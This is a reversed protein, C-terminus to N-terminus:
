VKEGSPAGLLGTPKILLILILIAFAVVDRLTSSFFGVVMAEAVGMLLGGLMAGPIVGIGGLVAAVFAKLGPMVGMLPEIPYFSGFLVGAAAALLSGLAFTASITTDVDIGMLLAAEKDYSVARMAKGIKTYQVIAYLGIMLLVAAGFFIIHQKQVMFVNFFFYTTDTVAPPLDGYYKQQPSQWFMMGYELFLSIGIATILATIRPANRLPKYAVREIIMGTMACGIMAVFLAAFWFWRGGPDLPRFLTVAFFGLYAGVMYIDGHAFNILRIIGYVMTYGLAILAYVAGLSLGYILYQGLQILFSELGAM